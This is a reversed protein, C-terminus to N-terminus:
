VHVNESLSPVVAVAVNCVIMGSVAVVRDLMRVEATDVKVETMVNDALRVGNTVEVGIGVVVAM